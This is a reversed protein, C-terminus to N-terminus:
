RVRARWGGGRAADAGETIALFTPLAAFPDVLFFYLEAGAALVACVGLAAAWSLLPILISSWVRNSGRISQYESYVGTCM